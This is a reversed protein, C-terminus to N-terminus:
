ERKFKKGYRPLMGMERFARKKPDDDEFIGNQPQKSVWKQVTLEDHNIKRRTRKLRKFIDRLIEEGNPTEKIDEEGVRKREITMEDAKKNQTDKEHLETKGISTEDKGITGPIGAM